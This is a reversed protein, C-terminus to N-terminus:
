LKEYAALKKLDAEYVQLLERKYIVSAPHYLPFIKCARGGVERTIVQGHVDGIMIEFDGVLAHLASNGLTCILEPKVLAIEELLWHRENLLEEPKAPRNVERGTKPNIKSLRYKIANTVYIARREFGASELLSNLQKGAAGVFPRGQTIEDRGPAEGIVLIPPMLPGEGLVTTLGPHAAMFRQNFDQM